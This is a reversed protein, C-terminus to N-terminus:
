PAMTLIFLSTYFAVVLRCYVHLGLHVNYFSALLRPVSHIVFAAIYTAYYSDVLQHVNRM